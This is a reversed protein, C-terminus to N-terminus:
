QTRSYNYEVALLERDGTADDNTADDADTSVYFYILDGTACSDDTLTVASSDTHGATGPVTNGGATAGAAISHTDIDAADGPTVCQIAAEWEVENATASAMSFIVVLTGHAAWDDPLVWDWVAAEDTTADFLLKWPGSGGDISASAASADLNTPTATVYM